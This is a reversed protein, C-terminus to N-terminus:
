NYFFYFGSILVKSIKNNIDHKVSVFSIAETLAPLIFKKNNLYFHATKSDAYDRYFDGPAVLFIVIDSNNIRQDYKSRMVMNLVSYANVGANGCSYDKM